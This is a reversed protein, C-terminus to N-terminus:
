GGTVALPKAHERIARRGHAKTRSCSKFKGCITKQKTGLGPAPRQEATFTAM